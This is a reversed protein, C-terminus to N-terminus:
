TTWCQAIGEAASLPRRGLLTSIKDINLGANLPRRAVQQLDKTTVPFVLGEDLGLSYALLRAFSYRNIVSSGATHYIGKGRLLALKVLMSALDMACTPSSVQDNIIYVPERQRLKTVLWHTFDPRSWATTGYIVATRCISWSTRDACAEQVALEGQLKSYGYFNLPQVPDDEHYLSGTPQDGNYVYDTSVMLCHVAYRACMKALLKTAITNVAYALAQQQECLDANAVAACHILATPRTEAFLMQMDQESACALDLLHLCVLPHYLPHGQPPLQRVLAHVCYGQKTLCQVVQTGVIGNAGTVLAACQQMM